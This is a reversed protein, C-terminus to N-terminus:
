DDATPRTKFPVQPADVDRRTLPDNINGGGEHDTDDSDGASPEDAPQADEPRETM